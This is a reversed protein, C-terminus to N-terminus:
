RFFLGLYGLCSHTLHQIFVGTLCTSKCVGRNITCNLVLHNFVGEHVEKIYFSGWTSANSAKTFERELTGDVLKKISYLSKVFTM